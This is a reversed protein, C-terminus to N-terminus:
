PSRSRRRGRGCSGRGRRWRCTVTRSAPPGLLASAPHAHAVEEGGVRDGREDLALSRGAQRDLARLALGAGRPQARDVERARRLNVVSWSRRAARAGPCRRGCRRRRAQRGLQADGSSSSTMSTLWSVHDLACAPASSRPRRSRRSRGADVRLHEQRASSAEDQSRMSRRSPPSRRCRRRAGGSRCRSPARAASRRRTRRAARPSRSRRAGLGRARAGRCARRSRASRARAALRRQRERDLRAELPARRREDSSTGHTPSRAPRPPRRAAGVLRGAPGVVRARRAATRAPSRPTSMSRARRPRRCSRGISSTSASCGPSTRRRSARGLSPMVSKASLTGTWRARAPRLPLRRATWIM